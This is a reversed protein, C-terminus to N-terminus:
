STAGTKTATATQPPTTSSNSTCYVKIKQLNVDVKQAVKDSINFNHYRASMCTDLLWKYEVKIDPCHTEVLKMLLEHKGLNKPNFGRYYQNFSDIQFKQGDPTKQKIPFIKHRVFHLASYFATTVKWDKFKTGSLLKCVEENHLAHELRGQEPMNQCIDM